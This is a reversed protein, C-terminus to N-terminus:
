TAAASVKDAAALTFYFTSGLGPQSELWLRGGYNEILRKSLPLGVGIGPYEAGHLRRFLEFVRAHHEPKIGIGNDEVAFCIEGNRRTATVHVRPPVGERSFELANLLLQEFIELLAEPEIRVAPLSDVAISASREEIMPALNRLAKRAAADADTHASLDAPARLNRSYALLGDILATVREVGETIYGSFEVEDQTNASRRRLLLQSYTTVMRLPEKLDHSAAWTVQELDAHTRSLLEMKELLETNLRQNEDMARRRERRNAAERLERDVAPGLRQMRDKMIYDHVGSRMAEVAREEGVSGSVLIFPIDLGTCKYIELARLGSFGPMSYDSVVLDWPEGSDLAATLQPATEVQRWDVQYGAQSLCDAILLADNESNEVILVKLPTAM